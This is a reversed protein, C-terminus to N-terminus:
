VVSEGHPNKQLHIEPEQEFEAQCILRSARLFVMRENRRSYRLTNSERLSMPVYPVAPYETSM